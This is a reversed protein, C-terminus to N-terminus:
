LHTRIWAIARELEDESLENVFGYEGIANRVLPMRLQGHRHELADSCARALNPLTMSADFVPLGLQRMVALIRLCLPESIWGRMLSLVVCFFGDVNVAEGHMLPPASEFEIIKSFSHGYDVCRELKFEWLNPGLEELMTQISIEIVRDAVGDDSQFREKVLRAGHKEILGFLEPSRVLALKMIEGLGNIVNRTDQTAIFRKDLFAAIPAYFAGVRNKLPTGDRPSKYDVGTKVGVSADVIGLLTTPVRIYPVGRRYMSAVFGTIDLVVGGGIALIPERRHLGFECLADLVQMVADLHKNEEEGPLVVVKIQVKHHAFYRAIADGYLEHVTKDVVLFRRRMGGEPMYRTALVSNEVDLLGHYMEVTYEVPRDYVNTWGKTCRENYLVTHAFVNEPALELPAHMVGDAGGDGGVGSGNAEPTPPM